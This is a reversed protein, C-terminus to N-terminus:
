KVAHCTSCQGKVPPGSMARATRWAQRFPTRAGRGSGGAGARRGPRRRREPAAIEPVDIEGAEVAQYFALVAERVKPVSGHPLRRAPDESAFTLTHCSRCSTEFDPMTMAVGEAAPQHCDACGLKERAGTPGRKGQPVLHSAHSFILGTEPVAPLTSRRTTPSPPFGHSNWGKGPRSM